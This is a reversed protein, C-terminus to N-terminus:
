QNNVEVQNSVMKEENNMHKVRGSVVLARLIHIGTTEDKYQRMYVKGTVIYQVAIYRVLIYINSKCRFSRFFM